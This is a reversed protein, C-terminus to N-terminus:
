QSKLLQQRVTITARPAAKHQWNAVLDELEEALWFSLEFFAEMDVHSKGLSGENALVLQAKAPTSDTM